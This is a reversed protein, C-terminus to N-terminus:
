VLLVLVQDSDVAPSGKGKSAAPSRAKRLRSGPSHLRPFLASFLAEFPPKYLHGARPFPFHPYKGLLFFTEVALLKLKAGISACGKRAAMALSGIASQVTRNLKQLMRSSVRPYVFFSLCPLFYFEHTRVGPEQMVLPGARLSACLYFSMFDDHTPPTQLNLVDLIM